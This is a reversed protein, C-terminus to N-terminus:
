APDAKDLLPFELHTVGYSASSTLAYGAKRFVSIMVLNDVLVDASFHTIDHARAIEALADLLQTGIGRKQFDDEVLFAVEAVQPRDAIVHYRGVAIIRNEPEELPVVVLALQTAGDVKVLRDLLEVPLSKITSLFRYRISEPSCRHFLAKLGDRDSPRLARLRLLTGDRLLLDQHYAAVPTVSRTTQLPLKKSM